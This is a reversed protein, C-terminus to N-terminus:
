ESFGLIFKSQDIVKSSYGWENDYWLVLKLLQKSIIESWRHDINVSFDSKIFDLSVLPEKTNKIIKFKQNKEYKKFLGIVEEISDIKSKINLTIDASGIINTPTRYSFSGIKNKLQPLVKYTADVASTPKPIMNGISSRGLAYHHYISGPVSWSSSPGDLLKQYNLWPHLTTIYGNSIGYNDNIIKLVPAIATADCISSSILHHTQNDYDLENAGIVMTFDVEEPSHTVIIKKVQKKKILNRAHIVNLKVGSSDIVLDLGEFGKVDDVFEETSYNIIKNNCIISTSDIKEFKDKDNLNGFLTDYNLQYIINGIDPNIDNIHILDFSPDKIIQRCLSKGIRGVGNIGIRIKNM